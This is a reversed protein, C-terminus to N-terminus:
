FFVSRWIKTIKAPYVKLVLFVVEAIYTTFKSVMHMKFYRYNIFFMCTMKMPVTHCTELLSWQRDVSMKIELQHKLSCKKTTIIFFSLKRAHTEIDFFTPFYSAPRMVEKKKSKPKGGSPADEM